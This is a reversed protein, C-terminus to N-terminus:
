ASAGESSLHALKRRSDRHWHRFCVHLFVSCRRHCSQDNTRKGIASVCGRQLGRKFSPWFTIAATEFKSLGLKHLILKIGQTLSSTNGASLLLVFAAVRLAAVKGGHNAYPASTATSVLRPPACASARWRRRCRRTRSCGNDAAHRWRKRYAKEVEDASRHRGAAGGAPPRLGLLSWSNELKTFSGPPAFFPLTKNPVGM